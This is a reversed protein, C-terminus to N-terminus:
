AKVRVLRHMGKEKVYEVWNPLSKNWHEGDWKYRYFRLLKYIDSTSGNELEVGVWCILAHKGESLKKSPRSKPLGKGDKGAVTAKAVERGERGVVKKAM